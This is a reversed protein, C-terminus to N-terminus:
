WLVTVMMLPSLDTLATLSIASIPMPMLHPSVTVTWTSPGSSPVAAGASSFNKLSCRYDCCFVLAASATPNHRRPRGALILSTGDHDGNLALANRCADADPRQIEVAAGGGLDFAVGYFIGIRFPMTELARLGAGDFLQALQGFLGAGLCPVLGGHQESSVLHHALVAVILFGDLVEDGVFLEVGFRRYGVHRLLEGLHEGGHVIGVHLGAGGVDLVDALADQADQAAHHLATDGGFHRDQQGCVVQGRRL